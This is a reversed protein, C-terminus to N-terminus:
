NGCRGCYAKVSTSNRSVHGELEMLVGMIFSFYLSFDHALTMLGCIFGEIRM